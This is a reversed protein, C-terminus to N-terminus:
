IEDEQLTGFSLYLGESQNYYSKRGTEFDSLCLM